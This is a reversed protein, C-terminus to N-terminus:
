IGAAGLEVAGAEVKIHVDRAVQIQSDVVEGHTATGKEGVLDV